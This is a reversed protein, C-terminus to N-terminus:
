TKRPASTALLKDIATCAHSALAPAEQPGGITWVWDQNQSILLQPWSTTFIGLCPVGAAAAIHLLGTDVGVVARCQSLTLTWESISQTPGLECHSEGIASMLELARQREGANGWPFLMRLGRSALHRGLEIWQTDVWLRESGATNVVMAVTHSNQGQWKMSLGFDAPGEVPQGIAQGVIHRIWQTRPNWSPPNCHQQYLKATLWGVAYRPDPGSRLDTCALWAVIASKPVGHVDIVQDYHTSRLMQLTQQLEQWTSRKTLTRKWRKLPLSIVRDVHSHMQALEVFREDVAMDIRAEPLHRRLDTVAPLAHVIDGLASLRIVLIHM